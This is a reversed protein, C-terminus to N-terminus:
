KSPAAEWKGQSCTSGNYTGVWSGSATKGDANFKGTLTLVQDNTSPPVPNFPDPPNPSSDSMDLELSFEGNTIKMGDTYTVDVSGSQSVPGCQFGTFNFAADIIMTSNPNVTFVVNGFDANANWKGAVPLNTGLGCASFTFSCLLIFLTTIRHYCSFKCHTWM